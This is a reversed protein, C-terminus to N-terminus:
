SVNLVPYAPPPITFSASGEIFAGGYFTVLVPRKASPNTWPRCYLGLYLCDESGSVTRQICMNFSQDTDYAGGHFPEPPQPVRFRNQGATSAAFPIKRFYSINYQANYKGQFTGYDLNVTPNEFAFVDIILSLLVVITKPLVPLGPFSIM